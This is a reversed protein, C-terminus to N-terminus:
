KYKKMLEDMSDTKLIIDIAYLPINSINGLKLNDRTLKIAYANLHKDKFAMLSKAKPNNGVKVTYAYLNNNNEYIFDIETKANKYTYIDYYKSLVTAIYNELVLNYYVSDKYKISKFLDYGAQSTVLSTESSFLKFSSAKLNSNLPLNLTSIQPVKIVYHNDELRKIPTKLQKYEYSIESFMFKQNSKNLFYPISNYTNSIAKSRLEDKTFDALYNDLISLKVNVLENIDKNEIYTKVVKPMGGILMYLDFIELHKNHLPDSIYGFELEEILKQFIFTKGIGIAFEIYSLPYMHLPIYFEEDNSSMIETAVLIMKYNGDEKFYMLSKYVEDSVKIQDIVIITEKTIIREFLVELNNIIQPVSGSNFIEAINDVDTCSIYVYDMESLTNKVVTTKGIQPAGLICIPQSYNSLNYLIDQEIERKIYM